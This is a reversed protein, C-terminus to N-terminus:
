MIVLTGIESAGSTVEFVAFVAPMGITQPSHCDSLGVTQYESLGPVTHLAGCGSSGGSENSHGAHPQGASLITEQQRPAGHGTRDVTGRGILLQSRCKGQSGDEGARQSPGPAYPGGAGSVNGAMAGDGAAAATGFMQGDASLSQDSGPDYGEYHAVHGLATELDEGGAAEEDDDLTLDVDFKEM